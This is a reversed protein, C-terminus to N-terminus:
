TFNNICSRFKLTLCSQGTLLCPAPVARGKVGATGGTAGERFVQSVLEHLLPTGSGVLDSM